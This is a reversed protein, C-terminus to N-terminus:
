FVGIPGPWELTVGIGVRRTGVPWWASVAAGGVGLRGGVLPGVEDGMAVGGGLAELAVSVAGRGLRQRVGLTGMMATAGTAGLGAFARAVVRDRAALWLEGGVAAEAQAVMGVGAGFHGGLWSGPEPAAVLERLAAGTALFGLGDANMRRSVVGVVRGEGDLAPGGSNGPNMAADTQIFWPGTASVVGESVSWRLLDTLKGGAAQAFPHGVLWLRDGPAPPEARVPRAPGV